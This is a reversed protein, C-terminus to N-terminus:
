AMADRQSQAANSRDGARRASSLWGGSLGSVALAIVSNWAPCFAAAQASEVAASAALASSLLAKPMELIVQPSLGM